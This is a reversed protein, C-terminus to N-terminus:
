MMPEHVTGNTHEDESRNGERGCAVLHVDKLSMSSLSMHTCAHM